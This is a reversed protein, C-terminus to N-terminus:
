SKIGFRKTVFASLQEEYKLLLEVTELIKGVVIFMYWILDFVKFLVKFIFALVSCVFAITIFFLWPIALLLEM